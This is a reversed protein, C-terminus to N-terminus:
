PRDELWIHFWSQVGRPEFGCKRYLAVAAENGGQTVVQVPQRRPAARELAAAVLERGLGQARAQAAVAVLGLESHEARAHWSLYGLPEGPPGSTFVADAWGRVSKEIWTAYLEDCRERAFRSDAYFRSDTHARTAIARLGPLDAELALRIRGQAPPALAAADRPRELVLRLGTHRGGAQEARREDAPRAALVYLCQVRQARCSELAALWAEDGIEEAQLSAIRVGFFQTDWELFRAVNTRAAASM